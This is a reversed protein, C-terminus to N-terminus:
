FRLGEVLLICLTLAVYVRSFRWISAQGFGWESDASGDDELHQRLFLELAPITYFLGLIWIVLGLIQTWSGLRRNKLTRSLIGCSIPRPTKHKLTMISSLLFVMSSPVTNVAVQYAYRTISFLGLVAAFAVSYVLLAIKRITMFPFSLRWFMFYFKLLSVCEPDPGFQYARARFYSSMASLQFSEMICFWRVMLVSHLYRLHM